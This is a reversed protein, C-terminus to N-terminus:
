EQTAPVIQGKAVALAFVEEWTCPLGAALTKRMHAQMIQLATLTQGPAGGPMQITGKYKTTVEAVMKPDMAPENAIAQTAAATAAPTSPAAPSGAAPAAAPAAQPTAPSPAAAKAPQSAQYQGIEAKLKKAESQLQRRHNQMMALAKYATKMPVRTTNGKIDGKTEDIRQTALAIMGEVAKLDRAIRTVQQTYVREMLPDATAPAATPQQATPAQQSPQAASTAPAAQGAVPTTADAEDTVMPVPAPATDDTVMPLAAGEETGDTVAPAEEAGGTADEVRIGADQYESFDPGSNQGKRETPKNRLATLANRNNVSDAEAATLREQLATLNRTADRFAAQASDMERMAQQTNKNNPDDNDKQRSALTFKADEYAVRLPELDKKAAAIERQISRMNTAIGALTETLTKEQLKEDGSLEGSANTGMIDRTIQDPVAYPKGNDATTLYWGKPLNKEDYGEPAERGGKDKLERESLTGDPPRNERKAKEEATTRLGAQTAQNPVAYKKGRFDFPYFGTEVKKDKTVEYGGRDMIDKVTKNAEETLKDTRGTEANIADIKAKNPVMWQTGMVGQVDWGQPVVDGAKYPLAGRGYMTMTMTDFKDKAEQQAKAQDAAMKAQAEKQKLQNEYDKQTKEMEVQSKQFSLQEEALKLRETELMNSFALQEKREEEKKKAGSFIASAVSMGPTGLRFTYGM